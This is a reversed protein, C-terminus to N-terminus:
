FVGEKIQEMKEEIIRKAEEMFKLREKKMFKDADFGNKHQHTAKNIQIQKFTDEAIGILSYKYEELLSEIKSKHYKTSNELCEQYWEITM